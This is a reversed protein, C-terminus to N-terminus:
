PLSYTLLPAQGGQGAATLNFLFSLLSFTTKSTLDDDAIYFWSGRHFVKVAANAPEESASRVRLIESTVQSWDFPRGDPYRTVTVRGGEEDATPAEVSQSVFYLSAMLSRGMVAIEDPGSPRRAAVVRYADLAPDVGLLSRMEDLAAQEEPTRAPRVRLQIKQSEPELSAELRGAIQLQRLARALRQFDAYDPVYDPTPGAAAVANPLGNIEQVCCSLLRSISWGSQSLLMLTLPPIPSLLRSAFEEGQLPSYSVTPSETYTGGVIAGASSRDGGGWSWGGSAGVSGSLEFTSVVAGVELFLPTDRYRLRVLNLLLQEEWARAIAQNYRFHDMPVTRPGLRGVCGASLVTALFLVLAARAPHLRRDLPMRRM